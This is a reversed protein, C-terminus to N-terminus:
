TGGATDMLQHLCFKKWKLHVEKEAKNIGFDIPLM